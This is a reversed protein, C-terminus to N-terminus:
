NERTAEEKKNTHGELLLGAPNRERPTWQFEVDLGEALKLAEAHLAKLHPKTVRYEGRVQRIILQSDGCVLYPPHARRTRQVERLHKLLLILAQYEAVNNSRVPGEPTDLDRVDQVVSTRDTVYAAKMDGKTEFQNRACAGDFYCRIRGAIASM